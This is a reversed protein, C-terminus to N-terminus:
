HQRAQNFSQPTGLSNQNWAISVTIVDDQWENSGWITLVGSM